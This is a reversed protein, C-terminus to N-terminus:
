EDPPQRLAGVIGFSFMALILFSLVVLIDPGNEILVVITLVALAATFVLATILALERSNM